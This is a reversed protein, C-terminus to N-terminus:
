AILKMIQVRRWTYNSFHTNERLKPAVARGDSRRCEVLDLKYRALERSVTKLSGARYLSRVNWTGFRMDTNRLKPRKDLSDTWTRPKHLNNTVPKKSPSANNVGHGVGLGYPWGKKDARQQKNLVIAALRWLQLGNRWGCGSSAGHQSSLSGV